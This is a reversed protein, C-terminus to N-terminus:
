FNIISPTDDSYAIHKVLVVVKPLRGNFIFGSM